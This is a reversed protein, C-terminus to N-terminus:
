PCYGLNIPWGEIASAQSIMTQRLELSVLMMIHYHSFNLLPEM